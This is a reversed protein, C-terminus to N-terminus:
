QSKKHGCGKGLNLDFREVTVDMKKLAFRRLGGYNPSSARRVGSIAPVALLAKPV